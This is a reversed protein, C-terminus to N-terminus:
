AAGFWFSWHTILSIPFNMIGWFLIKDKAGIWHCGTLALSYRSLLGIFYTAIIYVPLSLLAIQMHMKKEQVPSRRYDIIFYVIAWPLSPLGILAFPSEGGMIFINVYPIIALLSAVMAYRYAKLLLM